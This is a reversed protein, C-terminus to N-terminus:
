LTCADLAVHVSVSQVESRLGTTYRPVNKADKQHEYLRAYSKRDTEATYKLEFTHCPIEYVVVCTNEKEIQDKPHVFAKRLM